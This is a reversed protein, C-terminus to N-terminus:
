RLDGDDHRGIKSLGRSVIYAAALVTVLTWVRRADFEEAVAAAIVLALTTAVLVMFESTMFFPKGGQRPGHGTGGGGGFSFGPRRQQVDGTQYHGPQQQTTHTRQEETYPPQGQLSM